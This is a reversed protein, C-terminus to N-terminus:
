EKRYFIYRGLKKQTIGADYSQNASLVLKKHSLRYVIWYYNYHECEITLDEYDKGDSSLRYKCAMETKDNLYLYNLKGDNFSIELEEEKKVKRKIKFLGRKEIIKELTWTTHNVNKIVNNGMVQIVDGREKQSFSNLNLTLFM